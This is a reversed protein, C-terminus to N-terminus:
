HVSAATQRKNLTTEKRYVVGFILIILALVGTLVAVAGAILLRKPKVPGVPLYAPDLTELLYEEKSELMMLRRTQDAILRYFVQRIDHLSATEVRQDLFRISNQLERKKRDRMYENVDQILWSLWQQALIPSESELSVKVFGKDTEQVSMRETLLDYIEWDMPRPTRPPKAERTWEGTEENYIEPDLKHEGGDFVLAFLQPELGRRRIFSVLFKRSQLVELAAAVEGLDGGPLNIGALAGLSSLDSLISSTGPGSDDEARPMLLAESKYINDMFLLVVFSVIGAALALGIIWLWFKKLGGLLEELSVERSSNM